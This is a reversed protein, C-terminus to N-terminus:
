KDPTTIDADTVRGYILKEREKASDRFIQASAIMHGALIHDHTGWLNDLGYENILAALAKNFEDNM